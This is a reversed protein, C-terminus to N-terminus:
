QAVWVLACHVACESPFINLRIIPIPNGISEEIKSVGQHAIRCRTCCLQAAAVTSADAVSIMGPAPQHCVGASASGAASKELGKLPLRHNDPTVVNQTAGYSNVIRLYGQSCVDAATHMSCASYRRAGGICCVSTGAHRHM